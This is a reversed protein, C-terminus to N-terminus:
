KEMSSTINSPLIIASLIMVYFIIKASLNLFIIVCLCTILLITVFFKFSLYTPETKPIVHDTIFGKNIVSATVNTNVFTKFDCVLCKGRKTSLPRNGQNKKAFEMLSDVFEMLCFRSRKPRNTIGLSIIGRETTEALKIVKKNPNIIMTGIKIKKLTPITLYKNSSGIMISRYKIKVKPIEMNNLMM